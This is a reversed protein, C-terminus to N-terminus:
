KSLHKAVSIERYKNGRCINRSLHKAVSTVGFFFNALGEGLPTFNLKKLWMKLLHRSIDTATVLTAFYRDRYCTDRFIQRSVYTATVLTLFYTDAIVFNPLLPGYAM